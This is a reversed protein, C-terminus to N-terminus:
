PFAQEGGCRCASVRPRRKATEAPRPAFRPGTSLAAGAAAASTMPVVPGTLHIEPGAPSATYRGGTSLSADFGPSGVGLGRPRIPTRSPIEMAACPLPAGTASRRCAWAEGGHVLMAISVTEKEPLHQVMSPFPPTFSTFGTKDAHGLGTLAVVLAGPRKRAADSLLAAMRTERENSTGPAAIEHDFAVLSIPRGARRLHWIEMLMAIMARSGRGDPRRLAPAAHIQTRAAKEDAALLFADLARQSDAPWEVGIVLPRSSASCVIESFLAPTEATGHIEGLLLFRLGPRELLAALGDVSAACRPEAAQAPVFFLTAAALSAVLSLSKM